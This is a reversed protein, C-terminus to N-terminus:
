KAKLTQCFNTARDLWYSLEEDSHCGAPEVYVMSAMPKGTFDMPRTHPMELAQAAGENGLRLMLYSGLVGCCMNGRLLFAVGGFMKRESFGDFGQFYDRVKEALELDFAM